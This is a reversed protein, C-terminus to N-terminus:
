TIRTIERLSKLGKYIPIACLLGFLFLILVLSLEKQMLQENIASVIQSFFLGFIIIYVGMAFFGIFLHNPFNAKQRETTFDTLMNNLEDLFSSLQVENKEVLPKKEKLFDDLKESIKELVNDYYKKATDLYRFQIEFSAIILLGGLTILGVELEFGGCIACLYFHM